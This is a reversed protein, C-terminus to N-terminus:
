HQPGYGQLVGSRQDYRSDHWHTPHALLVVRLGLEDGPVAGSVLNAGTTTHLIAQGVGLIGWLEVGILDQIGAERKVGPPM